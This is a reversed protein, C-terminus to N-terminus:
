EASYVGGAVVRWWGGGWRETQLYLDNLNVVKPKNVCNIPLRKHPMLACSRNLTLSCVCVGRRGPGGGRWHWLRVWPLDLNRWWGISVPPRDWHRNHQTHANHEWSPKASSKNNTLSVIIAVFSSKNNRRAVRLAADAANAADKNYTWKIRYLNMFCLGNLLIQMIQQKDGRKGRM